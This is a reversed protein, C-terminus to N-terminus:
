NGELLALPTSNGGCSLGYEPNDSGHDTGRVHELEHRLVAVVASPDRGETAVKVARRHHVTVGGIMGLLGPTEADECYPRFEVAYGEAEIARAALVVAPQETVPRTDFRSDIGCHRCRLHLIRGLQGLPYADGGCAPCVHTELEELEEDM